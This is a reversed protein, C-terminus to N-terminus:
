WHTQTHTLDNMLEINNEYKQENLYEYIYTYYGNYLFYQANSTIILVLGM